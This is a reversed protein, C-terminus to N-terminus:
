RHHRAVTAWFAETDEYGDTDVYDDSMGWRGDGDTDLVEDAIADVDFEASTNEDSADIAEIILRYVAEARTDFTVSTNM